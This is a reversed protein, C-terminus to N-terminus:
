HLRTPVSNISQTQLWDPITATQVGTITSGTMLAAINTMTTDTTDTDDEEAFVNYMNHSPPAYGQQRGINRLQQAPICRTYVAVVFTKLAPYIKPTVDEWDDIEKLPFVSVHMLLCVTNNIVQMDSYPDRALVQIEQCQEIRYFLAAPADVPNFPSHLLKNNAFLMMTDLKGYTSELQNLM